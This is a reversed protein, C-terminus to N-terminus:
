TLNWGVGAARANAIHSMGLSSDITEQWNIDRAHSSVASTETLSIPLRRPYDLVGRTSGRRDNDTHTM